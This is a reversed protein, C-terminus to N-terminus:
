GNTKEKQHSIPNLCNDKKRLTTTVEILKPLIAECAFLTQYPYPENGKAEKFWQSFHREQNMQEEDEESKGAGIEGELIGRRSPCM